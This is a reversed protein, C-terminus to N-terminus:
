YHWLASELVTMGPTSGYLEGEGLIAGSAADIVVRYGNHHDEMSWAGSHPSAAIRVKWITKSPETVIFLASTLCRKQLMEQTVGELGSNLYAAQAIRLAEEEPISGEDPIGYTQCTIDYITQSYRDAYGSQTDLFYQKIDPRRDLFADVVPKYTACFEAREETSCYLFARLDSEWDEWHPYAARPILQSWEYEEVSSADTREGSALYLKTWHYAKQAPDFYSEGWEARLAPRLQEAEVFFDAIWLGAEDDFRITIETAQREKKSFSHIESLESLCLQRVYAICGAGLSASCPEQQRKDQWPFTMSQWTLVRGQRSM